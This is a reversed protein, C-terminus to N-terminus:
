RRRLQNIRHDNIYKALTGLRPSQAEIGTISKEIMKDADAPQIVGKEAMAMVAVAFGVETFIEKTETAAKMVEQQNKRTEEILLRHSEIVPKIWIIGLLISIGCVILFFALAFEQIRKSM